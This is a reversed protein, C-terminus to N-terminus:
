NIPLVFIQKYIYYVILINFYVQGQWHLPRNGPWCTGGTKNGLWNWYGHSQTKRSALFYMKPCSLQCNAHVAHMIVCCANMHTLCCATGVQIPRAVTFPQLDIEYKPCSGPHYKLLHMYLTDWFLTNKLVQSLPPIKTTM